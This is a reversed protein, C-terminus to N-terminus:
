VRRQKKRCCAAKWAVCWCNVCQAAYFMISAMYICITAGMLMNPSVPSGGFKVLAVGTGILLMAGGFLGAVVYSATKLGPFNSKWIVVYMGITAVLYFLVVLINGAIAFYLNHVAVEKEEQAANTDLYLNEVKKYYVGLFANAIPVVLQAGISVRSWIIARNNVAKDDTSNTLGLNRMPQIGHRDLNRSANATAFLLTLFFKMM